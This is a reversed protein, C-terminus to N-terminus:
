SELYRIYLLQVNIKKVKIYNILSTKKTKDYTNQWLVAGCESCKYNSKKPKNDAFDEIQLFETKKNQLTNKIPKGCIPCIAFKGKVKRM